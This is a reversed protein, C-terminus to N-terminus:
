NRRTRFPLVSANPDADVLEDSDFAMQLVPGRPPEDCFIERRSVVLEPLQENVQRRFRPRVSQPNPVWSDVGTTTQEHYKQSSLYFMYVDHKIKDIIQNRVYEVHTARPRNVLSLGQEYISIQNTVERCVWAPTIITDEKLDNAIWNNVTDHIKQLEAPQWLVDVFSMISHTVINAPHEYLYLLFFM